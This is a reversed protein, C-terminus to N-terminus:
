QANFAEEHDGVVELAAPGDSGHILADVQSDSTGDEFRSVRLGLVRAVIQRAAREDPREPM